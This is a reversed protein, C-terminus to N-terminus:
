GSCKVRKFGVVSVEMGIFSTGIIAIKANENIGEVIKKVDDIGRLTYVKELDAGEIPLKKPKAGPALVLYDYKFTTSDTHVTRSAPDIKTVTQFYALPYTLLSPSTPSPVDRV